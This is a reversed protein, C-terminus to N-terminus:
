CLVSGIQNMYPPTTVLCDLYVPIYSIDDRDSIRDAGGDREVQDGDWRVIVRWCGHGSEVDGKRCFRM